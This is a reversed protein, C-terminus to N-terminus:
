SGTAELRYVDPRRHELAPLVRRVRDLTRLDLEATAVHVGDPACALVTGWPDIIMSRGYLAVGPIPTGYQNAAVVFCQNEVARARLLLEWHDRGTLATFAAPMFLIKAGQLAQLRFLEPFRLDYCISLGAPIGAINTTVVQSGPRSTRSELYELEGPICVDFLHMKRYVACQGGMPDYVISTNDIRNGDGKIRITGGVIWMGHQRAKAALAKSFPGDLTEAGDLAAQADPGLYDVFEPLVAVEAGQRRSEDTMALADALNKAKDAGSSTQCVSVRM